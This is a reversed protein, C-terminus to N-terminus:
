YFLFFCSCEGWLSFLIPIINEGSDTHIEFATPPKTSKEGVHGVICTGPPDLINELFIIGGVMVGGYLLIGESSSM